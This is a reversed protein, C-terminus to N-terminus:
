GRFIPDWDEGFKDKGDWKSFGEPNFASAKYPSAQSNKVEEREAVKPTKQPEICFPLVGPALDEIDLLAANEVTNNFRSYYGIIKRVPMDFAFYLATAPASEGEIIANGEEGIIDLLAPLAKTLIADSSIVVYDAEKIGNYEFADFGCSPCTYKEYEQGEFAKEFVPCTGIEAVKKGKLEDYASCICCDECIDAELGKVRAETNYYANLTAVGVAARTLSDWKMYNGTDRVYAGVFNGTEKPEELMKAVGVNGNVRVTVWKKGVVVGETTIGSPIGIYLDDYLKWM